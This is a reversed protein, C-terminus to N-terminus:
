ATARRKALRSTLISLPLSFRSNADTEFKKLSPSYTTFRIKGEEPDFRILRLWGNGGNPRSQYDAVVEIVKRGARNTSTQHYEPPNAYHGNLVMFIQPNLSILKAWVAQASNGRARRKKGGWPATPRNKSKPNLYAHTTVITPLGPHKGLIGKAWTIAKDPVNMELHLILFRMGGGTFLQYSNLGNPSAGGYWSRNQFRRPGFHRAFTKGLGKAFNDYDHNGIAVGWPVVGDLMSMCEDAVKWESRQRGGSQVIDGAHTVFVINEKGTNEVIWKTQDRFYRPFKESYFQTDPLMVITFPGSPEKAAPARRIGLALAAGAAGLSVLFDRRSVGGAQRSRDSHSM